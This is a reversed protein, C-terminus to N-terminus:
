LGQLAGRPAGESHLWPHLSAKRAFVGPLFGVGAGFGRFPSRYEQCHQFGIPISSTRCEYADSLNEPSM